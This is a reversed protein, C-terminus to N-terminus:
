ATEKWEVRRTAVGVIRVVMVRAAHGLEISSMAMAQADDDDGLMEVETLDASDILLLAPKGAPAQATMVRTALAHTLDDLAAPIDAIHQVKLTGALNNLILDRAAVDNKLDHIRTKIAQALEGLMIQGTDGIAARINAIINILIDDGDKRAPEADPHSMVHGGTDPKPASQPAQNADWEAAQHATMYHKIERGHESLFLRRMAITGNKLPSALVVNHDAQKIGTVEALDPGSIPGGAVIAKILQQAKTDPKIEAPAPAPKPVTIPEKPKIGMLAPTKLGTPWYVDQTVGGRTIRATSLLRQTTMAELAKVMEGTEVRRTKCVAAYIDSDRMPAQPTAQAVIALIRETLTM